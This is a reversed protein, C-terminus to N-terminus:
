DYKLWNRVLKKIASRFNKKQIDFWHINAQKKFWTMQMRIYNHHEFKTRKIAEELSIKKDLYMLVQRYGLTTFGISKKGNTEVLGKVENIFDNKFWAEVREDAKKYLFERQAALGIQLSDFNIKFRGKLKSMSQGTQYFIELARVVRRPNQKDIKKATDPDLNELESVLASLPTATLKERLRLDPPVEPIKLGEVVVRIYLGTGGVLIPIKNESHIKKIVEYALRQYQAASFSKDPNIVDYLHIKIGDVVWFNNGKRIDSFKLRLDLKGTGIDMGKYIQRSDASVLEGNFKKALYLALNTKGVCTPGEIVLLKKM